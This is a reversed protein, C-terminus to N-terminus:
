VDGIARTASVNGPARQCQHIPAVDRQSPRLDNPSLLFLKPGPRGEWWGAGVAGQKSRSQSAGFAPSSVGTRSKPEYVGIEPCDREWINCHFNSEDLPIRIRGYAM